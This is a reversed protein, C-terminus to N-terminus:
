IIFDENEDFIDKTDTVKKILDAGEYEHFTLHGNSSTPSVMGDIYELCLEAVCGGVDEIFLPRLHKRRKFYIAKFRIIANELSDFLSLGYSKCMSDSEDLM